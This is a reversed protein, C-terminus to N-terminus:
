FRGAAWVMGRTVVTLFVPDLFTENTHGYTIGFVRTGHFRNTWIVPQAEGSKERASTALVTVGPWVKEIVYLEDKPTVWNQPFGKMVPHDAVVVKVPYRSQHDHSRTSVGLFRRWDDIEADRYSHMACHIVVAPTGKRHAGTISRIYEPDKTEAFCQNYVVVDYDGAWDPNRHLPLQARTGKGGENVVTWEINALEESGAVLAQSQLAYDHCCGGTILLARIASGTHIKEPEAPPRDEAGVFAFSSVVWMWLGFLSKKM